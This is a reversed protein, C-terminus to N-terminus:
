TEAKPLCSAQIGIRLMETLDLETVEQSLLELLRRLEADVDHRFSLGDASTSFPLHERLIPHKRTALDLLASLAHTWRHTHVGVALHLSVGETRTSHWLGPPVYLLGGSRLALTERTTPETNPVPHFDESPSAIVVPGLNWHKIGETQAVFVHHSDYHAQIGRTPGHTYYANICVRSAFWRTLERELADLGPNFQAIRSIRITAGNRALAIVRAPDITPDLGSPMILTFETPNIAGDPTSCSLQPYKVAGARIVQEFNEVSFRIEHNLEPLFHCCGWERRFFGQGELRQLVTLM